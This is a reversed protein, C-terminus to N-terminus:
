VTNIVMLTLARIRCLCFLAALYECWLLGVQMEIAVPFDVVM